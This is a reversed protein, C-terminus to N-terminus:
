KEIEITQICTFHKGPQLKQIGPKNSFLGETDYPDPLGYWPEVCVFNVKQPTSWFVVYPFGKIGVRVSRGTDKEVISVHDSSLDSLIFSTPFLEDHLPIVKRNEFYIKQKGSLLGGDTCLIEIPTEEEEFVLSYDSISHSEDFPVNYGTHYGINFYMEEQSVNEIEFTQILRNSVLQFITYLRFYYPYKKLTENNEAFLFTISTNDRQIVSHDYDRAFGHISSEYYQNNIITRNDKLKGCHPFLTPARRPWVSADGQWLHETGDEKNKISWLEAGMSNIQVQLNENEITYIM